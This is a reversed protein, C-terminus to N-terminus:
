LIHKSEVMAGEAGFLRPSLLVPIVNLFHAMAHLENEWKPSLFCDWHKQPSPTIPDPLWITSEAQSEGQLPFERDVLAASVNQPPVVLM